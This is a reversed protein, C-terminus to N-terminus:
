IRWSVIQYLFEEYQRTNDEILFWGHLCKNSIKNPCMKCLCPIIHCYVTAKVWGTKANFVWDNVSQKLQHLCQGIYNKVTIYRSRCSWAKSLHQCIYPLIQHGRNLPGNSNSRNGIGSWETGIIIITVSYFCFWSFILPCGTSQCIQVCERLWDCTQCWDSATKFAWICLPRRSL